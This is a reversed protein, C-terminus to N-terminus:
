IFSIAYVRCFSFLRNIWRNRENREWAILTSSARTQTLAHSESRIMPVAHSVIKEIETHVRMVRCNILKHQAKCRTISAALLSASSFCLFFNIFHFKHRRLATATHAARKAIKKKTKLHWLLSVMLLETLLFTSRVFCIKISKRTYWHSSSQRGNVCVFVRLIENRTRRQVREVSENSGNTRTHAHMWHIVHERGRGGVRALTIISLFLSLVCVSVRLCASSRSRSVAISQNKQIKADFSFLFLLLLVFAFMHACSARVHLIVLFPLPGQLDIERNIERIWWILSYFSISVTFNKHHYLRWVVAAAACMHRRRMQSTYGDWIKPIQDVTMEIARVCLLFLVWFSIFFAMAGFYYLVRETKKKRTQVWRNSDSAATKNLFTRFSSNNQSFFYFFAFRSHRGVFLGLLGVWMAAANLSEIAEFCCNMEYISDYTSRHHGCSERGGDRERKTQM